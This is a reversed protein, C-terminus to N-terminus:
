EIVTNAKVTRRTRTQAMEISGVDGIRHRRRLGLLKRLKGRLEPLSACCVFPFLFITYDKFFLMYELSIATINESFGLQVAIIIIGLLLSFILYLASVSLIQITMKRYKRWRIPQNMRAKQCIARM